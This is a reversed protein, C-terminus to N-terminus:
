GWTDALNLRWSILMDQVFVIETGKECAFVQSNQFESVLFFVTQVEREKIM